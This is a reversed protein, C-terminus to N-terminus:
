VGVSTDRETGISIETIGAEGKDAYAAAGTDADEVALM